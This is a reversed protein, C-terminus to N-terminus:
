KLGLRREQAELEEATPVKGPRTTRSRRAPRSMDKDRGERESKFKRTQECWNTMRNKWTGKHKAEVRGSHWDACKKALDLNFEPFKSRLEALWREDDEDWGKWGRLGQLFKSLEGAGISLSSKTLRDKKDITPTEPTVILPTGPTVVSPTEPTVVQETELSSPTEPTVVWEKWRKNFTWISERHRPDDKKLFIRREVLRNLVRIVNRRSTNTAEAWQGYSIRDSKKAQGDRNIWGYTQRWLHHVCRSEYDTLPTKAIAELIEIAIRAFGDELQPNGEGRPM